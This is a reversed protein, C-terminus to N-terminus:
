RSILYIEHDRTHAMPWFKKHLTLVLIYVIRVDRQVCFIYVLTWQVHQGTFTVIRLRLLKVDYCRQGIFRKHVDRCVHARKELYMCRDSQTRRYLLLMWQWPAKTSLQMIWKLKYAEQTWTCTNNFSIVCRPQTNNSCTIQTPWLGKSNITCHRTDHQTKFNVVSSRLM